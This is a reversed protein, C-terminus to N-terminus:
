TESIDALLANANPRDCALNMYAYLTGEYSDKGSVRSLVAGDDDMWEWDSMVLMEMSSMTIFYLRQLVGPTNALSADKDAVLAVGNFELARYGGDLTIEGGAPYRKDSQLLAAYRRKIAHNTLIVGPVADGEIDTEDFAQQMLDLKLDRLVGANSLIRSDWFVSGTRSIEGFTDTLGNNAGDAMTKGPNVASIAAELGWMEVTGGWAATDRANGRFVGYTADTTIAAGSIVFSTADTISVVTRGVAGTGTAGSARIVVDILMGPQLFKTSSVVVTTSATTVGTDTLVSSGDHFLQRNIDVKLDRVLGQMESSVARVFAGVDNRTAKISPGTVKIRGYNYKTFFRAKDYVQNGADPLTHVGASGLDEKRAGIGVNRGKHLPLYAEKGVYSRDNRRLNKLLWTASNLQERVPPMYDIKLIDQIATLDFAM